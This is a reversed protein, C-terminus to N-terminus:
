AEMCVTDLEIGLFVLTTAPGAIKNVALPVGLSQCTTIMCDLAARCIGSDPPGLVLFDLYHLIHEVDSTWIIWELADAYIAM